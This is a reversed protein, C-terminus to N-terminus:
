RSRRIGTPPRAEDCIHRWEPRPRSHPTPAVPCFSTMLLKLSCAELHLSLSEAMAATRRQGPSSRLRSNRSLRRCKASATSNQNLELHPSESAIHNLLHLVTSIVSGPELPWYAVRELQRHRDLPRCPWRSRDQAACSEHSWRRHRHLRVEHAQLCAM